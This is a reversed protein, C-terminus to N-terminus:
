NTNDDEDMQIPSEDRYGFVLATKGDDEGGHKEILGLCMVSVPEIERGNMEAIFVVDTDELYSLAKKIALVTLTYPTGDICMAAAQTEKVFEELEKSVYM